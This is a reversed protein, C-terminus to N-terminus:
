KLASKAILRFFIASAAGVITLVDSLIADIDIGLAKSLVPSVSVLIAWITKSKIWHKVDKM